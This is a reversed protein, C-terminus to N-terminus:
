ILHMCVYALDEVIKFIPLGRIHKVSPNEKHDCPSYFVQKLAWFLTDMETENLDAFKDPVSKNVLYVNKLVDTHNSISPLSAICWDFSYQSLTNIFPIQLKRLLKELDEDYFLGTTMPLLESITSYVMGNDAPILTFNELIQQSYVKFVPDSFICTLFKYVQLVEIGELSAQTAGCWSSPLNASFVSRILDFGKDDSPQFITKSSKFRTMLDEHLFSDLSKPFLKWNASNITNLGDSLCHVNENATLLFGLSQLTEYLVVDSADETIAVDHDKVAPSKDTDDGETMKHVDLFGVFTIFQEVDVFRTTSVHCPLSQNVFIEDHFKTYYKLVSQESVFPLTIEIEKFQKFIRLPTSVLNMGIANLAKHKKEEFAHFNYFHGEEPEGPLHLKYWNISYQDDTSQKVVTALIAPNMTDLAKYVEEALTHWPENSANKLIPFLKYYNELSHKAKKETYISEGQAVCHTLFHAYSAGIAEILLDNWIKKSDTIKLKGQGGDDSSAWLGRRDSHLVFQGHIHVPLHTYDLLPLFCFPKGTFHRHKEFIPVAIGHQPRVEIDSPKVEKWDFTDNLPNGEGLQVLWKVEENIQKNALRMNYTVLKCNGSDLVVSKKGKASEVHSCLVIPQPDNWQLVGVSDKDSPEIVYLRIDCVNHVFLLAERMLPVWEKLDKELKNLEFFGSNAVIKSQEAQEQTLRLPLRFLSGDKMEPPFNDLDNQLYPSKM